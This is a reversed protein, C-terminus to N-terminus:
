KLIFKCKPYNSCGKFSGYKGKKDLLHNGCKPCQNNEVFTQREALNKKISNVHQKKTTTVTGKLVKLYNYIEEVKDKSMENNTYKKITKLLKTSYVVESKMQELKLDARISFSVIPIFTLEGFSQLLEKLALIHGYNQRLPNYIREKRKYIVQTWYESHENGVIWGKYNKTEIVFIGYISILIHDIQSTKGDNKEITLDNILFYEDKNLKKLKMRISLEGVYGKFTPSKSLAYLIIIFAVFLYIM